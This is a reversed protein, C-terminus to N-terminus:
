ANGLPNIWRTHHAPEVEDALKRLWSAFRGRGRVDLIGGKKRNSYAWKEVEKMVSPACLSEKSIEKFSVM